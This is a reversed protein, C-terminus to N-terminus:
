EGTGSGFQKNQSNLLFRDSGSLPKGYLTEFRLRDKYTKLYQQKFKDLLSKYRNEDFKGGSTSSSLLNRQLDFGKPSTLYQNFSSDAQTDLHNNLASEKNKLLQSQMNKLDANTNANQQSVGVQAFGLATQKKLQEYQLALQKDKLEKMQALSKNHFDKDTDIKKNKIDLSRTMYDRMAQAQKQKDLYAQTGQLSNGLVSAFNTPTLSPGSNSLLQASLVGLPSQGMSGIGSSLNNLFDLLM